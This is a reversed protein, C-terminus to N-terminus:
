CASAIEDPEGSQLDYDEYGKITYETQETKEVTKGTEPDTEKTKTKPTYSTIVTTGKDNELKVTKIDSPILTLLEGAGNEVVEGNKAKVEAQWVNDKDLKSSVSAEGDTASEDQEKHIFLMAVLVAALVAVACVAIILTKTTASTKKKKEKTEAPKDFNKLVDAEETNDEIIVDPTNKNEDM